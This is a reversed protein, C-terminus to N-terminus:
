KGVPKVVLGKEVDVALKFAPDKTYLTDFIQLNYEKEILEQQLVLEQDQMSQFYDIRGKLWVLMTNITADPLFTNVENAGNDFSAYVKFRDKDLVINTIKGTIM